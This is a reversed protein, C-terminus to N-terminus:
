AASVSPNAKDGGLKSKLKGALPDIGSVPVDAKWVSQILPIEKQEEPKRLDFVQIKFNQDDTELHHPRSSVSTM